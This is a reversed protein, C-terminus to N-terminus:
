AVSPAQHKQLEKTQAICLQGFLLLIFLLTSKM